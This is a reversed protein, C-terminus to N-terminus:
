LEFDPENSTNGRVTGESDNSFNSLYLWKMFKEALKIIKDGDVVKDAYYQIALELCDRKNTVKTKM